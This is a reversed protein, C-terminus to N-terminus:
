LHEQDEVGGGSLVRDDLRLHELFRHLAGADDQGLEVAGGLPARDEADLLLEVQRHLEDADAFLRLVQLQEIRVRVHLRQERISGHSIFRSAALRAAVVCTRLTMSARKAAERKIYTM